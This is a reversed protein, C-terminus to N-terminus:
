CVDYLGDSGCIDPKVHKRGSNIGYSSSNYFTRKRESKEEREKMKVNDM